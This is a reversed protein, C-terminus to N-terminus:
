FQVTVMSEGMRGDEPGAGVAIVSPGTVAYLEVARYGDADTYHTRQKDSKDIDRTGPKFSTRALDEALGTCDPHLHYRVAGSASRLLANYANVREMVPPNGRPVRMEVSYYYAGLLDRIIQYDTQTASTKRATGSADGFVTVTTSSDPVRRIFEHCADVTTAGGPIAIEQNAWAEDGLHGGIIWAMPDVNFDCSLDVQRSIPPVDSTVHVARDFEYVPLENYDLWEAEWLARFQVSGMRAAERAIFMAYERRPCDARHQDANELAIPLNCPCPDAAMRDRWTWRRCAFGAEGAEAQKWLKHATGDVQGVNGLYRARGFGHRITEARRSSIAQYAAPTLQGFEDVVIGLVSPGYM